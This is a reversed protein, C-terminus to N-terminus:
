IYLALNLGMKPTRATWLWVACLKVRDGLVMILWFVHSWMFLDIRARNFDIILSSAVETGAAAAFQGYISEEESSHFPPSPSQQPTFYLQLGCRAVPSVGVDRGISSPLTPVCSRHIFLLWTVVVSTTATDESYWLM